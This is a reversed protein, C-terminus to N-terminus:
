DSSSLIPQSKFRIRQGNRVDDPAEALVQDGSNLGSKIESMTLGRLGLEVPQQTVSDNNVRWVVQQGDSDTFIVENPVVLAQERRATEITVSVTMDQRLFQPPETIQLRVEVTGRQADIAPSIFSLTAAFPQNPYADAIIQAPQGLALQPLNREDLPTRVEVASELAMTFLVTGPQVVDGTEFNRTLLTGAAPARITAKALQAQLNQVQAQLRQAETGTPSVAQVQLQATVSATEAQIEAQRAQEVLETTTLEAALLAERRERERTAQALVTQARELEALAQPRQQQELQVVAAQAADLQAKLEEARLILLIDGKSVKDGEAVRRELVLGALESSVQLRAENTVRGAAVVRQVLPAEIVVYGGLEPGQWKQYGIYAALLAVVAIIWLYNRVARRM